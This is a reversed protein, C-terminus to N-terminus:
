YSMSKQRRGKGGAEVMPQEIGQSAKISWFVGVALCVFFFAWFNVEIDEM